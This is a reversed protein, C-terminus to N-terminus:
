LVTIGVAICSMLKSGETELVEHYVAGRSFASVDANRRSGRGCLKKRQRRLCLSVISWRTIRSRARTAFRNPKEPSVLPPASAARASACADDNRTTSVIIELPADPHHHPTSFTFARTSLLAHVLPYAVPADSESAINPALSLTAPPLAECCSIRPRGFQAIVSIALCRLTPLEFYKLVTGRRM